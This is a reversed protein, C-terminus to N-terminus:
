KIQNVYLKLKLVIGPLNPNAQKYDYSRTGWYTDLEDNQQEYPWKVSVNFSEKGNSNVTSNSTYFEIKFPYNNKMMNILQESTLTSTTFVDGLISVEELEYKIEAQMEGENTIAISNNYDTMGPYINDIKFEVYETLENDENEFTVRWAKVSTSLSNQVRSNYVFWAFTNCSLALALFLLTRIRIGNKLKKKELAM